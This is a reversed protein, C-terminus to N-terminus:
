ISFLILWALMKPPKFYHAKKKKQKGKVNSTRKYNM